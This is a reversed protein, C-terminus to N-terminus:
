LKVLISMGIMSMVSSPTIGIRVLSSEKSDMVDVDDLPEPADENRGDGARLINSFYQLSVFYFFICSKTCGLFTSEYLAFRDLSALSQIRSLTIFIQM